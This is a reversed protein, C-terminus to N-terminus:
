GKAPKVPAAKPAADGAPAPAPAPAAVPAADAAVAFGAQILRYAEDEPLDEVTGIMSNRRHATHKIKM